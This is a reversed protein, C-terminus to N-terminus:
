RANKLQFFRRSIMIYWVIILLGGGMSFIMVTNLLQPVFTLFIENILLLTFGFIGMFANTKSFIRGQLMVASIIIGAIEGFLFGIFTGPVHSKGVSLMSQGAAILISKQTDTTAASYQNSLEFMPLARNTALFVTIGVFSIVIAILAIYAKNTKRHAYYLALYIPIGLPIFILNLLGLNRLGIFWNNQLLTFWEIVTEASQNAAPIFTIGVEVMVVIVAIITAIGAVIYLGKWHPGTSEDDTFQNPKNKNNM